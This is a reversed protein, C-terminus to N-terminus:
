HKLHLPGSCIGTAAADFLLKARDEPVHLHVAIERTSKVPDLYLHAMAQQTLPDPLGEPLIGARAFAAQVGGALSKVYADTTSTSPLPVSLAQAGPFSQSYAALRQDTIRRGEDLPSSWPAPLRDKSLAAAKWLYNSLFIVLSPGYKELIDHLGPAFGAYEAILQPGRAATNKLPAAPWLEVSFSREFASANQRNRSPTFGWLTFWDALANLVPGRNVAADFFHSKGKFSAGSPAFDAPILVLVGGSRNEPTAATNVFFAEEM